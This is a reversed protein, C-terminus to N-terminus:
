ASLLADPDRADKTLEAYGRQAGEGSGFYSLLRDVSLWSPAPAGFAARYSSWRWDGPAQCLGAEVPNRAIYAAVACMQEDSTVRVAGFRGQFLHGVYGHRQNFANAYIGQLYQMGSSLNPEPTEILLHVHNDLLCYALCIWRKTVVTARLLDLYRRRDVDDLYIREKRNGRAYVHHVGDEIDERPQRPVRTLPGALLPGLPTNVKQCL